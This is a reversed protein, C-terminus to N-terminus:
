MQYLPPVAIPVIVVIIWIIVRILREQEETLGVSRWNWTTSAM